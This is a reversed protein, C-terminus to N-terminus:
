GWRRLPIRNQEVQGDLVTNLTRAALDLLDEESRSWRNYFHSQTKRDAENAGLKVLEEGIWYGICILDKTRPDPVWTEPRGVAWPQFLRERHKEIEARVLDATYRETM